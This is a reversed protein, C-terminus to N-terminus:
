GKKVFGGLINVFHSFLLTLILFIIAVVIAGIIKKILWHMRDKDSRYFKLSPLLVNIYLLLRQNIYVWINSFLLLVFLFSIAFANEIVLHASIKLALWIGIFFGFLVGFIQVVLLTWATRVWGHKNKCKDIIEQVASFSADMWDKDDSTALLYCSNAGQTDLRLELCTGVTRNSSVSQGDEVTFFVREVKKAQRFYRLLDAFSFVRYGRNDFRIMYHFFVPKSAYALKGSDVSGPVTSNLKEARDTFVANIETLNDVDISLNSSSQDRVFVAM